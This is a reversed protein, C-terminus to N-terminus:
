ILVFYVEVKKKKKQLILKKVLTIDISFQKLNHKWDFIEEIVYFWSHVINQQIIWKHSLFFFFFMFLHM